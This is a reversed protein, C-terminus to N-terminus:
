FVVASEHMSLTAAVCQDSTLLVVTNDWAPMARAQALLKGLLSDAFSVAAYYGHRAHRAFEDPIVRGGPTCNAPGAGENLGCWGPATSADGGSIAGVGLLLISGPWADDVHVRVPLVARLLDLLKQAAEQFQLPALPM